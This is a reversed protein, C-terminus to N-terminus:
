LVCLFFYYYYYCYFFFFSILFFLMGVDKWNVIRQSHIVGSTPYWDAFHGNGVRPSGLTWSYVPVAGNVQKYVDVSALTSM